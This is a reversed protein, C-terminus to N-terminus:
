EEYSGKGLKGFYFDAVARRQWDRGKLLIKVSEKLVALKSRLPAYKISFLIRNRTIYYDQLKSGSGGASGANKHWVIAKPNFLIKYGAKKTRESFDSDEYYLYYNKDFAGIKEFVEKKILMCCGTAFETEETKDFQNHDVEDVGRHHGIVNKWDIEGGAYWIVKGKEKEEYRDKHFEYGPAFYIKPVVIGIKDSSEITKILEVILNKDILTDNNLLLIYEAGEELSYRIGINNGEAFGLNEESRIINLQGKNLKSNQIRARIKASPNFKSNSGNDVVIVSLDFTSTNLNNISEICEATDKENNYSLTVIAVKKMDM